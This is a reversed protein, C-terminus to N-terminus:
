YVEEVSKELRKIHKYKEEIDKVANKLKAHASGFVEKNLLKSAAEPDNLYEAMEEESVNPKV